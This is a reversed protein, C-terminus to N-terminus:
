RKAAKMAQIAKVASASPAGVTGRMVQVCPVRITAAPASAQELVHRGSLEGIERYPLAVTTLGPDLAESILRFDDFGVISM